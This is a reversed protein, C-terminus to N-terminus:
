SSKRALTGRQSGRSVGHLGYPEDGQHLRAAEYDFVKPHFCRGFNRTRFLYTPGSLKFRYWWRIEADSSQQSNLTEEPLAGGWTAQSSARIHSRTCM